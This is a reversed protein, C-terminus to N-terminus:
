ITQGKTKLKRLRLSCFDYATFFMKICCFNISQDIKLGPNANVPKKSFRDKVWFTRFRARGRLQILVM